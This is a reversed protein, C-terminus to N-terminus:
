PKRLQRLQMSIERCTTDRASTMVTLNLEQPAGASDTRAWTRGVISISTEPARWGSDQLQKGYHDLLAGASLATVLSTNTGPGGYQTGCSSTMSSTSPNYLTPLPSRAYGLPLPAPSCISSGTLSPSLRLTVDTAVGRRRTATVTLLQQDGCLTVRTPTGNVALSFGAPRFGGGYSPQPPPAKWGQKALERNMDAIVVDPADPLSIIGVVTSGLFASGLVTANAPTKIRASVWGPLSGVLIQPEGGLGGAAILASALDFPV